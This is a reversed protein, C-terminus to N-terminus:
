FIRVIRHVNGDLCNYCKPFTSHTDLTVRRMVKSCIPNECEVEGYYYETILKRIDFQLKNQIAYAYRWPPFDCEPNSCM